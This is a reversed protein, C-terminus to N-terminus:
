PKCNWLDLYKCLQEHREKEHIPPPLDKNIEKTVAKKVNDSLVQKLEGLFQPPAIIVLEDYAKEEKGKKLIENLKHAFIHQEHTHPDYKTEYAHRTKGGTMSDFARGPRDSTIEGNKLRGDPNEINFIEKIDKGGAKIEYVQAFGSNAILAWIKTM